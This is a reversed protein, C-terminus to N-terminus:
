AAYVLGVVVTRWAGAIRYLQVACWVGGALLVLGCALRNGTLVDDRYIHLFSRRDVLQTVPNWVNTELNRWKLLQTAIYAENRM